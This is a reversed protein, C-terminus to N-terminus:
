AFASDEMAECVQLHGGTSKKLKAIVNDFDKDAVVICGDSGKDGQSHILFGGRQNPLTFQAELVCVEKRFGKHQGPPYVRWSGPPIAVGRVIPNRKKDEVAKLAYMYPNNTNENPKLTKAGGGGGSWATAYIQEDGFIGTLVGEWIYYTLQGTGPLAKKSKAHKIRHFHLAKSKFDVRNAEVILKDRASIRADFVAENYAM